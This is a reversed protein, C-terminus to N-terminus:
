DQKEPTRSAFNLACSNICYRDGTKGTTQGPLDKGGRVAFGQRSPLRAGKASPGDNFLHGLHSGCNTCVVETRAMGFSNDDFLEVANKDVAQWFSPWGSGSEYKTASSFLNQGCAACTFMGHGKNNLLKGTFPPETGKERLVRYQEPTLKQRWYDEPKNKYTSM